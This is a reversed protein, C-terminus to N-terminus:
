LTGQLKLKTLRDRILARLSIVSLNDLNKLGLCLAIDVLDTKTAQRGISKGDPARDRFTPAKPDAAPAEVVCGRPRFYQTM